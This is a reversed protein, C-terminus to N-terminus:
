TKTLKLDYLYEKGGIILPLFKEEDKFGYADLKFSSNLYFVQIEFQLTSNNLNWSEFKSKRNETKLTLTLAFTSFSLRLAVHPHPRLYYVTPSPCRSPSPSPLLCYAFPLTLTLAFTTFPLRLAVHPHPRFYYVTPSPSRLPRFTFRSVHFKFISLQFNFNLKWTKLKFYTQLKFEVKLNSM